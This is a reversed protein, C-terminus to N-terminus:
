PHLTTPPKDRLLGALREAAGYPSLLETPPLGDLEEWDAIEESVFRLDDDYIDRVSQGTKKDLRGFAPVPWASRDWAEARGLLPWKPALGDLRQVLRADAATLERLQGLTLEATGTPAFFYCLLLGDPRPETRAILGPVFGGGKPLPVAFWGGEGYRDAAPIRRRGLFRQRKDWAAQAAFLGVVALGAAFVAPYQNGLHHASAHSRGWWFLPVVAALALVTVVLWVVFLAGQRRAEDADDRWARPREAGVGTLRAPVQHRAAARRVAMLIEPSGPRGRTATATVDGGRRLLVTLAWNRGDTTGDAFSGAEAWAIRYTRFPNCVMVGLDDFRVGLRWGRYLASSVAVAVVVLYVFVAVPPHKEKLVEGPWIFLWPLWFGVGFLPVVVDGVLRRLDRGVWITGSGRSSQGSPQAGAALELQQGEHGPLAIQEAM